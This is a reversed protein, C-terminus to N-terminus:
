IDKFKVEFDLFIFIKVIFKVTFKGVIPENLRDFKAQKCFKVRWVFVYSNM